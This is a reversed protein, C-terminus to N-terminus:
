TGEAPKALRITTKGGAATAALADLLTKAGPELEGVPQVQRRGDTERCEADGYAILLEAVSGARAPLVAIVGPYISVQGSELVRLETLPGRQVNAFCARGSWRVPQLPLELPLSALLAAVAKPALNEWLLVRASASGVTVEITKL